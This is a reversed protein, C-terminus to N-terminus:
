ATPRPDPEIAYVDDAKGYLPTSKDIPTAQITSNEADTAVPDGAAEQMTLEVPQRVNPHGAM